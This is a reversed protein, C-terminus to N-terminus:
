AIPSSESSPAGHRSNMYDIVDQMGNTVKDGLIKSAFIIDRDYVDITADPNLPHLGEGKPVIVHVLEVEPRILCDYRPRGDGYRFDAPMPEQMRNFIRAAEAFDQPTMDNGEDAQFTLRKLKSPSEEKLPLDGDIRYRFYGRGSKASSIHQVHPREIPEM